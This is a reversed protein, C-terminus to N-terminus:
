LGSAAGYQRGPYIGGGAADRLVIIMRGVHASFLLGLDYSDQFVSRWPTQKAAAAAARKRFAQEPAFGASFREFNGPWQFRVSEPAPSAGFVCSLQAKIEAAVIEFGANQTLDEPAQFGRRDMHQLMCQFCRSTLLASGDAANFGFALPQRALFSRGLLTYLKRDAGKRADM